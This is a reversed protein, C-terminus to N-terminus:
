LMMQPIKGLYNPCSGRSIRINFLGLYDGKRNEEFPQGFQVSFGINSLQSNKYNHM